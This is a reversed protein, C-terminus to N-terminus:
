SAAALTLRGDALESMWPSRHKLHVLAHLMSNCCGLRVQGDAKLGQWGWLLAPVKHLYQQHYDEDSQLRPEAIQATTRHKTRAQPNTM